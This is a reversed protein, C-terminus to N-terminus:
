INDGGQLKKIDVGNEVLTCYLTLQQAVAEELRMCYKEDPLVLTGDDAIMDAFCLTCM